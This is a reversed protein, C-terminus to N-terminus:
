AFHSFQYSFSCCPFCRSFNLNQFNLYHQLYYYSQLPPNMYNLQLNIYLCNKFYGIWERNFTLGILSSCFWQLNKSLQQLECPQYLSDQTFMIEFNLYKIKNLNAYLSKDFQSMEYPIQCLAKSNKVLSSFNVIVEIINTFPPVWKKKGKFYYSEM